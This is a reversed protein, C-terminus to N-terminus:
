VCKILGGVAVKLTVIQSIDRTGILPPHAHTIKVVVAMFINKASSGVISNMQHVDCSRTIRRKRRQSISRHEHLGAVHRVDVLIPHEIHERTVIIRHTAEPLAALGSLQVVVLGHHGQCAIVRSTIWIGVVTAIVTRYPGIEISISIQIQVDRLAALKDIVGM